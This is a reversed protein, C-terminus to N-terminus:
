TSPASASRFADPEEWHEQSRHLGYINFHVWTGCPLFYQQGDRGELMCGQAATVERNTVHAPPFLRLSENVV